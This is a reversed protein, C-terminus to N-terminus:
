KTKFTDNNMLKAYNKEYLVIFIGTINKTQM